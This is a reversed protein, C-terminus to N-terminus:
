LQKLLTANDSKKDNKVQDRKIFTSSNERYTPPWPLDNRVVQRFSEPINIDREQTVLVCAKYIPYRLERSILHPIATVNEATYSKVDDSFFELLSDEKKWKKTSTPVHKLYNPVCTSM